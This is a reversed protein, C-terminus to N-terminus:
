LLFPFGNWIDLELPLADAKFGDKTKWCTGEM